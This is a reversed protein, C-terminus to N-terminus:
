IFKIAFMGGEFKNEQTPWDIKKDLDDVAPVLSPFQLELTSTQCRVGSACIAAFHTQKPGFLEYFFSIIAQAM